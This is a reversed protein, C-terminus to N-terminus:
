AGALAAQAEKGGLIKKSLTKYRQLLSHASQLREFVAAKKKVWYNKFM